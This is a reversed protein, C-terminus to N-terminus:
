QSNQKPAAVNRENQVTLTEKQCFGNKTEIEPVAEIQKM